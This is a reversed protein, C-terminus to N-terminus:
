LLTGIHYYMNIVAMEYEESNEVHNSGTGRAAADKYQYRIHHHNRDALIFKEEQKECGQRSNMIFCIM